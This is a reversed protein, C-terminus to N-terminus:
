FLALTEQHLSINDFSLDLHGLPTFFQLRLIDSANIRRVTISGHLLTKKENDSRVEELVVEYDNFNKSVFDRVGNYFRLLVDESPFCYFRAKLFQTSVKCLSKPCHSAIFINSVIYNM